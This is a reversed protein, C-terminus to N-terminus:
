VIYSDSTTMRKAGNCTGTSPSQTLKIVPGLSDVTSELITGKGVVVVRFSFGSDSVEHLIDYVTQEPKTLEGMRRGTPAAALRPSGGSCSCWRMSEHRRSVVHFAETVALFISVAFASQM